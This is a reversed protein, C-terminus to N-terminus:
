TCALNRCWDEHDRTTPVEADIVGVAGPWQTARKLLLQEEDRAFMWQVKVGGRGSSRRRKWATADVRRKMEEQWVRSRRTQREPSLLPCEDSTRSRDLRSEPHLRLSVQRAELQLDM